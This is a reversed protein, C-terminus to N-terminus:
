PMALPEGGHRGYALANEDSLLVCSCHLLLVRRESQDAEDLRLLERFFRGLQIQSLPFVHQDTPLKKFPRWFRAAKGM